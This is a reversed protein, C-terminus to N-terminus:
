VHGAGQIHEVFDCIEKKKDADKFYFKLGVGLGKGLTRIPVGVCSVNKKDYSLNLEVEKVRRQHQLIKKQQPFLSFIFAGERDFRSVHCKIASFVEEDNKKKRSFSFRKKEKIQSVECRLGPIPKPLGAYWKKQPDFFSKKMERRAWLFLGGFYVVLFLVFFGLWFDAHQFALVSSFIVWVGTVVAFFYLAWAKGRILWISLPLSILAAAAGWIQLSHIPLDWWPAKAVLVTQLLALPLSMWILFAIWRLPKPTRLVSLM